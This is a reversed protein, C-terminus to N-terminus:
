LMFNFVRPHTFCYRLKGDMMRAPILLHQMIGLLSKSTDFQNEKVDEGFESRNFSLIILELVHRPDSMNFTDPDMETDFGELFEDM